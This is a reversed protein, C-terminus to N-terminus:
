EYFEEDSGMMDRIMRDAETFAEESIGEAGGMINKVFTLGLTLLTVGIVVVIITTMSLEIAGRKSSHTKM